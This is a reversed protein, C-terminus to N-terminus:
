LVNKLVNISKSDNLLIQFNTNFIHSRHMIKFNHFLIPDINISKSDYSSIRFNANVKLSFQLIAFNPSFNAKITLSKSCCLLCKELRPRLESAYKYRRPATNFSRLKTAQNALRQLVRDHKAMQRFQRWRPVELLNIDRAYIACTVPDDKSINKLPEYTV